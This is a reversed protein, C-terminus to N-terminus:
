KLLTTKLFDSVPQFIYMIADLPSVILADLGVAINLSIGFVLVISFTWILKTGGQKLKPLEILVILFAIILVCLTIFM